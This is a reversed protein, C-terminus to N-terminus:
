VCLGWPLNSVRLIMTSSKRFTEAACGPWNAESLELKGAKLRFEEAKLELYLDEVKRRIDRWSPIGSFTVEQVVQSKKFTVLLLQGSPLTAHCPFGCGLM